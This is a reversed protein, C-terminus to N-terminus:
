QDNWRPPLQGDKRHALQQLVALEIVNRLHRVSGDGFAFNAGAPHFSGFGGVWLPNGPGGPALAPALALKPFEPELDLEEGPMAGAEGGAVPGMGMGEDDLPEWVATNERRDQAQPLDVRYKLANIGSGANRLTVRTGSMWHLDWGDPIKEGLFLTHALGDSVDEIRLKSNLFFVGNDAADIPKETDNHVGAYCPNGQPAWSSPCDILRPPVALLPVQKPHYVGVRKDIAEWTVRDEIFPLIQIVWNHHYGLQANLIPGKADITGPPYVGHQSEYNHVALILQGLHNVCQARRAAERAAQVSPLLLAVLVGIIAIVVLVELLTFGRQRATRM